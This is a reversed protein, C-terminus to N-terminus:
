RAHRRARPRCREGLRGGAAPGRRRACRPSTAADARAPRTADRLLDVAAQELRDLREALIEHQPELAADDHARVQPHRAAPRDPRAPLRRPARRPEHQAAVARLAHEPVPGHELQVRTRECRSPGSMRSRGGRISAISARSLAASPCATTRRSAGRGTARRRSRSCTARRTATPPAARATAAARRRSRRRAAAASSVAAASIRADTSPRAAGAAGADIPADAPRARAAAVGIREYPCPSAVPHRVPARVALFSVSGRPAYSM